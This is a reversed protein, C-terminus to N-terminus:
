GFHVEGPLSVRVDTESSANVKADASGECAHFHVDKEGGHKFTKGAHLERAFWVTAGAKHQATVFGHVNAV